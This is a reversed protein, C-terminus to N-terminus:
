QEIKELHCTGHDIAHLYRIRDPKRKYRMVTTGCIDCVLKWQYPTEKRAKAIAKMQALVEKDQVYQSTRINWPVLLENATKRWEWNHKSTPCIAHAVEHAITEIMTEDKVQLIFESFVIESIDYRGRLYSYDHHTYCTAFAQTSQKRIYPFPQPINFNYGLRKARELIADWYRVFREDKCVKWTRKM